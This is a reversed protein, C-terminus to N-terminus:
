RVVPGRDALADFLTMRAQEVTAGHLESAAAGHPSVAILTGDPATRFRGEDNVLYYFDSEPQKNLFLLYQEGQEYLGGDTDLVIRSGDREGGVREVTLASGAPLGKITQEVMFHNLEFPLADAPDTSYAVRGPSTGVMRAVVIVDVGRAMSRASDFTDKWATHFLNGQHTHLREGVVFASGLAVGSVLVSAILFRSKNM